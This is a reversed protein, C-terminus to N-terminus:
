MPVGGGLNSSFPLFIKKGEQGHDASKATLATETKFVATGVPSQQFTLCGDM